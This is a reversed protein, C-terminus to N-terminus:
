SCPGRACGPRGHVSARSREPLLESCLQLSACNARLLSSALFLEGPFSAFRLFASPFHPMHRLFADTIQRGFLDLPLYQSLAEDLMCPPSLASYFLLQTGRCTNLSFNGASDCLTPRHVVRHERRPPCVRTSDGVGAGRWTPVPLLM